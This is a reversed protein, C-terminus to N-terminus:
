YLSEKQTRKSVQYRNWIELDFDAPTKKAQKALRLFEKELRLYQTKSPTSLPADIGQARLYKLIHTDLAAYQAQKRSHIIFCRSTKMGIGHITELEQPTCSTLDLNAIALSYMSKAKSTFCGIGHEKLKQPLRDIGVNKIADFPLLKNQPNIDVLLSDLLKAATVGNKGAACIWFLAVEQLEFLTLDYRTIRTPDIM